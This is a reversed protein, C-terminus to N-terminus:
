SYAGIEQIARKGLKYISRYKISNQMLQHLMDASRIYETYHPVQLIDLINLFTKSPYLNKIVANYQSEVDSPINKGSKQLFPERYSESREFFEKNCKGDYLDIIGEKYYSDFIFKHLNFEYLKSYDDPRKNGALQEKRSHERYKRYQASSIASEVTDIYNLAKVYSTENGQNIHLIQGLRRM